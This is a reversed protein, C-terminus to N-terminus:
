MCIENGKGPERGHMLNRRERRRSWEEEFDENARSPADCRAGPDLVTNM